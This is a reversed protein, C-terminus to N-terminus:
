ANMILDEREKRMDARSTLGAVDIANSTKKSRSRKPREKEKKKPTNGRTRNYGDEFADFFLIADKELANLGESEDLYKGQYRTKNLPIFMITFMGNYLYDAYVLNNGGSHGSFHQFVRDYINISKGVYYKDLPKNHLVYIGAIEPLNRHRKNLFNSVMIESSGKIDNFFAIMNKDKAIKFLYKKEYEQYIQSWKNARFKEYISVEHDRIASQVMKRMDTDTSPKNKLRQITHKLERDHQANLQDIYEDYEEKISLADSSYEESNSVESELLEIERLHKQKLKQVQDKRHVLEEGLIQKEEKHEAKLKEFYQQYENKLRVIEGSTDKMSEKKNKNLRKMSSEYKKKQRTLKDEYHEELAVTQRQFYWIAVFVAALAGIVYQIDVWVKRYLIKNRKQESEYDQQM